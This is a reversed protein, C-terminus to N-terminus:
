LMLLDMEVKLSFNLKESSSIYEWKLFSFFPPFGSSVKNGSQEQNLRWLHWSNYYEHVVNAFNTGTSCRNFVSASCTKETTSSFLIFLIHSQISRRWWYNCYFHIIQLGWWGESMLAEFVPWTNQITGQRQLLANHWM